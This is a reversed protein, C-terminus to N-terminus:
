RSVLKGGVPAKRELIFGISVFYALMHNDSGSQGLTSFIHLIESLIQLLFHNVKNRVVTAEGLNSSLWRETSKVSGDVNDSSVVRGVSEFVRKGLLSALAQILLVGLNFPRELTVTLRM